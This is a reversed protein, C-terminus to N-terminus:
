GVTSLEEDILDADPANYRVLKRLHLFSEPDMPLFEIAVGTTDSRIIRCETEIIASESLVIRLVGRDNTSIEENPAALMGKLSVNEMHLTTSEFGPWSFAVEFHSQVRSRRRRENPM